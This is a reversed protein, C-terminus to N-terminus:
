SYEFAIKLVSPNSQQEKSHNVHLKQTNHRNRKKFFVLNSLEQFAGFFAISHKYYKNIQETPFPARCQNRQLRSLFFFFSLMLNWFM